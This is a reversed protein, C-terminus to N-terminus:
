GARHARQRSGIREALVLGRVSNGLYVTGNELDAPTLVTEQARGVALLEARLTGPLLGSALVPTLLVGDREIFISTRSGEALEGHTNLFLVEDAGFAAASKAQEGDYLTRRTTKHYLLPDAPNVRETSVVYRMLVDARVPPLVTATVVIEGDEGLVLRVRQRSAGFRNAFSAFIRAIKQRDYPIGFYTASSRLRDIHREALYIGAEADYLM